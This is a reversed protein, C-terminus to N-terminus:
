PDRRKRKKGANTLEHQERYVRASLEMVSVIYSAQDLNFAPKPLDTESYKAKWNHVTCLSVSYQQSVTKVPTEDEIMGERVAMLYHVASLKLKDLLPHQGFVRQKTNASLFSAQGFEEYEIADALEFALDGPLESSFKPNAVRRLMEIVSLRLETAIEDHPCLQDGCEDRWRQKAKLWKDYPTQELPTQNKNSSKKNPAM